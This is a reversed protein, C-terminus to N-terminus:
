ISTIQHTVCCRWYFRNMRSGGCPTVANRDREAHSSIQTKVWAASFLPEKCPSAKFVFIISWILRYSVLQPLHAKFTCYFYQLITPCAHIKAYHGFALEICQLWCIQRYSLLCWLFVLDTVYYDIYQTQRCQMPTTRCVLVREMIFWCLQRCHYNIHCSSHGCEM